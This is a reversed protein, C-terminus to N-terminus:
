ENRLIAKKKHKNNERWDSIYITLRNSDLVQLFGKSVLVRLDDETAGTTRIVSFAEVIGDDDARMGLDFYLLRSSIPMKLFRASNIISISFMRRQALIDGEKWHKIYKM